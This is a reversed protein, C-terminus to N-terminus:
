TVPVNTIGLPVGGARFVVVETYAVPAQRVGVPLGRDNFVTVEVFVVPAALTHPTVKVGVVVGQSNFIPSEKTKGM